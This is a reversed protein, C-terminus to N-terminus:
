CWLELLELLGDPGRKWPGGCQEEGMGIIQGRKLWGQGKRPTGHVGPAEADPRTSPHAQGRLNRLLRQLGDGFTRGRAVAAPSGQERFALISGRLVLWAEASLHYQITNPHKQPTSLHTSSLFILSVDIWFDVAQLGM